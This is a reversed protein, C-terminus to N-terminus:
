YLLPVLRWTRRRYEEWEKGFEEKLMKEEIRIRMIFYAHDILAAVLIARASIAL